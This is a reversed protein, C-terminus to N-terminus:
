ARPAFLLCVPAPVELVNGTEALLGTGPDIALTVVNGSRQNEVLLFRGTPDIAFNRPWSGGTPHHQIVTLTGTDAAVEAVVISDHGRNSGYVFRGNPHVHIDACANKGTYGGPLTSVSATPHLTGGPFLRLSTISSSLENIVYAFPARPHFAMHRPGDGPRVSLSADPLPLLTGGAIDGDYTVIRDLGLDPVYIRPGVHYVAHPHPADQGPRAPGVWQHRVVRPAGIPAGTTDLDVVSVTGGTYNAVLLHRLGRHVSLHAPHAGGSLARSTERLAGTERDVAYAVVGGSRGPGRDDVEEVAYLADVTPHFALFSPNRVARTVAEIRLVGSLPDFLCHYLGESATEETYTGLYARIESRRVPPRVCGTALAAAGIVSGKLFDRRAVQPNSLM